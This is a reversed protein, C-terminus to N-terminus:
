GEGGLALLNAFLKWAGVVGAPLERFFSLGTYIVAGRGFPAVLLGGQLPPMGADHSELMPRWAPDWTGAFYLGREQVWGDFDGETIQNPSSRLVESGPLFRMPATEDTVRDHPRAITLPLPAFGGDVFQYQQYQILLTGGARAFRLLRPNARALADNVEYARPGIVLVDLSDLSRGELEAAGLLRFPVAAAALAEPIRDAAGRVYGIRRNAAFRVPAVTVQVDSPHFTARAVVHPYAIRTIGTAFTDSGAVAIARFTLTGAAPSAPATVRFTYSAREGERTFRAAKAADVRWGRPVQLAITADTTDRAAHEVEVTFERSALSAPWLLDGPTVGVLLRPVITVPKRVEGLGQDRFRATVPVRASVTDGSALVLRFRVTLPSQFPEGWAAPDGDWRYMAGDPPQRLFYPQDPAATAALRIAYGCTDTRGPALRVGIADCLNEKRGINSSDIGELAYLPWPNATITDRGANWVVLSVHVEQGPTIEDDDVYADLVVGAQALRLADRRSTDPPLVPVGAFLSDHRGANVVPAVEELGIMVTSPGPDELMGMDQSRHQSRARMGIQHLSHGTAPDLTGGQLTIGDTVGYDRYFKLPQFPALGEERQLEPFRAPDAAAHFAEKAVIGSVQHQGHGDRPTGSFVAVIVQPRFRRIIRVVDKLVSDHPWFTFSEDASRTFGFDIARTFFQRGGDIRRAAVLEGSRLVGLGTGLEDGILNQGGEGRTLALYGTEVGMGRSLIAILDNDEDDPHAGIVLVRHPAALYREAQALDVAGGTGPGGQQAALPLAVPAALIAAVLLARTLSMRSTTM